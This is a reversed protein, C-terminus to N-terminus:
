AITAAEVRFIGVAKAPTRDTKEKYSRAFNCPSM